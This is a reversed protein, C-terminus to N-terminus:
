SIKPMVHELIDDSMKATLSEALHWLEVHLKSSYLNEKMMFDVLFNVADLATRYFSLKEMIIFNLFRVRSSLLRARSCVITLVIVIINLISLMVKYLNHLLARVRCLYLIKNKIDFSYYPFVENVNVAAFNSLLRVNCPFSNVVVNRLARELGQM